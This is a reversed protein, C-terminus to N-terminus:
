YFVTNQHRCKSQLEKIEKRLDNMACNFAAYASEYEQDCTSCNSTM